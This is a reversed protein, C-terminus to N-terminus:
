RGHGLGALSARATRAPTAGRETATTGTIASCVVRVSIHVMSRGTVASNEGTAMAATPSALRRARNEGHIPRPVPPAMASDDCSVPLPAVAVAVLGDALREDDAGDGADRKGDGADREALPDDRQQLCRGLHSTEAAPTEPDNQRRRRGSVNSEDGGARQLTGAVGPRQHVDVDGRVGEVDGPRQRETQPQEPRRPQRDNSDAERRRAPM